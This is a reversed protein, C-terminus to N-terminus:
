VSSEKNILRTHLKSKFKNYNKTEIMKTSNTIVFIYNTLIRHTNKKLKKNRKLKEMVKSINSIVQCFRTKNTEFIYKYIYIYKKLQIYKISLLISVDGYQNEGGM